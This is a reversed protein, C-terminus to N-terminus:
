QSQVLLSGHRRSINVSQQLLEVDLAASGVPVAGREVGLESGDIEPRLDDPLM